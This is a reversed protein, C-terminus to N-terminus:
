IMEIDEKEIEDEETPIVYYDIWSERDDQFLEEIIEDTMEECGYDEPNEWANSPDFM